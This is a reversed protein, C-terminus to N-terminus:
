RAEVHQPLRLEGAKARIEQESRGLTQSIMEATVGANWLEKLKDVATISWSAGTMDSVKSM